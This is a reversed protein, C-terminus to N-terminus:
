TCKKAVFNTKRLYNYVTLGAMRYTSDKARQLQLYVHTTKIWETDKKRKSLNSWESAQNLLCHFVEWQLLSNILIAGQFVYSSIFWIIPNQRLTTSAVECIKTSMLPVIWLDFSNMALASQAVFVIRWTVNEFEFNHTWTVNEAIFRMTLLTSQPAAKEGEFIYIYIFMNISM